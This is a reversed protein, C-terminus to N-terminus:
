FNRKNGKDYEKNKKKDRKYLEGDFIDWRVFFLCRNLKYRNLPLELKIGLNIIILM